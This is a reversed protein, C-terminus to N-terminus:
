SANEQKVKKVPWFFGYILIEYVFFPNIVAREM